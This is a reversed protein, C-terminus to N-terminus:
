DWRPRATFSSPPDTNQAAIRSDHGAPCSDSSLFVPQGSHEQLRDYIGVGRRLDRPCLSNSYASYDPNSWELGHDWFVSHRINRPFNPHRTCPVRIKNHRQALKSPEHTTTTSSCTTTTSGTSCLSFVDFDCFTVVIYTVKYIRCYFFCSYRSFSTFSIEVKLLM